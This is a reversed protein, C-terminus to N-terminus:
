KRAAAIAKALAERGVAGSFAQDGIVWSPTGNFGMRAAMAQTRQLEAEVEKSAAVKRARELDLGAQKAAQEIAEPSPRGIQFIAKHFAEFRGQEAAALAMRAADASQPSLIPLERLVVKLDPNAAILADIDAVSHRCYGCAYDSFEVLVVKGAPNGLVAGPFPTLVAQRIEGLQSASERAQLREIAEPLIEPNDLIYDRVVKETADRNMGTFSAAWGGAFGLAAALLAIGATSLIRLAATKEDAM